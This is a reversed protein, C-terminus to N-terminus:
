AGKREGVEASEATARFQIQEVKRSRSADLQVWNRPDARVQTWNTVTALRSAGRPAHCAVLVGILVFMFKNTHPSQVREPLNRWTQEGRFKLRGQM